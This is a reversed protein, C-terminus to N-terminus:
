HTPLVAPTTGDEGRCSVKAYNAKGTVGCCCAAWPRAPRASGTANGVILMSSRGTANEINTAISGKGIRSRRRANKGGLANMHERKMEMSFGSGAARRETANLAIGTVRQAMSKVHVRVEPAGGHIM